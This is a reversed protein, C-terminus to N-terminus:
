SDRARGPQERLYDDTTRVAPRPAAHPDFNAETAVVVRCDACMKILDLQQNTQYMWHTGQLRAAVREVTSRVGFPTGCRICLFPEEEKLIQPPRQVASFDIRPVLSIV